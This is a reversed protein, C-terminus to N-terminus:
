TKQGIPVLGSCFHERNLSYSYNDFFLKFKMEPECLPTFINSFAPDIESLYSYSKFPILYRWWVWSVHTHCQNKTLNFFKGLNRWKTASYSQSFQLAIFRQDSYSSIQYVNDRDLTSCFVILVNAYRLFCPRWQGVMNFWYQWMNSLTLLPWDSRFENPM